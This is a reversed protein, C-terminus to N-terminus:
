SAKVSARQVIGIFADELSFPIEHESIVKINEKKLEDNIKKLEEDPNELNLHLRDAFVAVKWAPLTNRIIQSAKRTDDTSM